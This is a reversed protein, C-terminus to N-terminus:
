CAKRRTGGLLGIGTLLLLLAAPEPVFVLTDDGGIVKIETNSPYENDAAAHFFHGVLRLPQTGDTFPKPAAFFAANGADLTFSTLLDAWLDGPPAGGTTGYILDATALTIPVNGNAHTVTANNAADFGFVSVGNVGYLTMTATAFVPSVLTGTGSFDLYLTYDTGLGPPAFTSGGAVAGTIYAYGHESWSLDPAIVIHSRESAKLADATFASGNLGVAGPDLTVPVAAAQGWGFSLLALTAATGVLRHLLNM